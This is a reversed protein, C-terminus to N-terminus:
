VSVGLLQSLNEASIYYTLAYVGKLAGVSAFAYSAGCSMQLLHSLM